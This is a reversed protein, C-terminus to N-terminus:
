TRCYPRAGALQVVLLVGAGGCLVGVAIVGAVVSRQRVPMRLPGARLIRRRYGVDTLTTVRSESM